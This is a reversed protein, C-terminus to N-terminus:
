PRERALTQVEVVDSRSVDGVTYRFAVSFPAEPAGAGTSLQVWTLKTPSKFLGSQSLEKRVDPPLEISAATFSLQRPAAAEVLEFEMRSNPRVLEDWVAVVIRGDSRVAVVEFRRDRSILPQVDGRADTPAILLTLAAAPESGAVASGRGAVSLLFARTIPPVIRVIEPPTDVSSMYATSRPMTDPLYLAKASPDLKNKFLIVAGPVILAIVIALFILNNRTESTV